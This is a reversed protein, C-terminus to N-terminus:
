NTADKMTDSADDMGDKADDVANDIKEGAQEAPGDQECGTIGVTLALLSILLGYKFAKM